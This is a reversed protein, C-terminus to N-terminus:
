PPSVGVREYSLLTAQSHRGVIPLLSRLMATCALENVRRQLTSRDPVRLIPIASPPLLDVAARSLLMYGPIAGAPLARGPFQLFSAVNRASRSSVLEDDFSSLTARLETQSTPPDIVGLHRGVVAMQAVYADADVGQWHYKQAAALMSDVLGIHVWMLLHPDEASYRRGDATEGAVRQHVAKVMQTARTALTTSGFTTTTVFMNTRQLRGLPDDRYSSHQEVGALALPHCAQLLLARIGGVLTALSGNVQWIASGPEFWGADGPEALARVWAPRGEEDGSLIRRFTRRIPDIPTPAM